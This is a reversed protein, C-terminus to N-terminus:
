KRVALRGLRATRLTVGVVRRVSVYGLCAVALAACATASVGQLVLAALALPGSSYAYAFTLTTDFQGFRPDDFVGVHALGASSTAMRVRHTNLGIDETYDETFFEAVGGPAYSSNLDTVTFADGVDATFLAVAYSDDLTRLDVAIQSARPAPLGYRNVRWSANSYADLVDRTLLTASDTIPTGSGGAGTIAAENRATQSVGDETTATFVNVQHSDDLNFQLDGELVAASLSFSAPRNYRHTRAQFTLLGDRGVLVVGNETAAVDGFATTADMGGASQGYVTATGQELLSVDASGFVATTDFLGYVPDDFIGIGTRSAAVTSRLGVYAAIRNVRQDSREGGFGDWGAHYHANIRAASLATPHFAVHGVAGTYLFNYGDGGVRLRDCGFTVGASALTATNAQAGDIYIRMVHNSGDATVTAAIHRTAGNAVVTSSSCTLGGADFYAALHKSGDVTLSLVQAKAGALLIAPVTIAATSNIWAELTIGYGGSGVFHPASVEVLYGSTGSAPTLQLATSGDSPPGTASGLTYAGGGGINRVVGNGIPNSAINQIATSGDADGLPLYVLPQDFLIEESLFSKLQGRRAIFKWRSTATLTIVSATWTGGVYTLAWDDVHADIRAYEVGGVIAVLRCRRDKVVNPYYPSAANGMTFRGDANDLKLDLHGPQTASFEDPRGGRGVSVGMEFKVWATLDTWTPSAALPATTLAVDFRYTITM